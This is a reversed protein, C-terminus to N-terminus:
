IWGHIYHDNSWLTFHVEWTLCSYFPKYVMSVSTHYWMDPAGCSLSLCFICQNVDLIVLYSDLWPSQATLLLGPDVSSIPHAELRVIKTFPINGPRTVTHNGHLRYGGSKFNQWIRPLWNLFTFEAVLFHIKGGLDTEEVFIHTGHLCTQRTKTQKNKEQSSGLVWFLTKCLATSLLYKYFSHSIFSSQYILPCYEKRELEDLSPTHFIPFARLWKGSM